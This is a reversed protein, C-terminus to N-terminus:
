LGLLGPRLRESRKGYQTRQLVNLIATLNAIRENATKEVAELRAVEAAAAALRAENVAQERAMALIMAKLTDIDDPLNPAHLDM